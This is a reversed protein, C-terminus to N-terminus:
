DVYEFRYWYDDYSSRGSKYVKTGKCVYKITNKCIGLEKNVSYKSPFYHAEDTM